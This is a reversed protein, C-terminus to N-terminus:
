FIANAIQRRVRREEERQKELSLTPSGSSHMAGVSDMTSQIAPLVPGSSPANAEIKVKKSIMRNSPTSSGSSFNSDGARSSSGGLTPKKHKGNQEQRSFSPQTICAPLMARLHFFDFLHKRFIQFLDNQFVCGSPKM